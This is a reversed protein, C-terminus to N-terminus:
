VKRGQGRNKKFNKPDYYRYKVRSWDAVDLFSKVGFNDPFVKDEGKGIKKESFIGKSQSHAKGGKVRGKSEPNTPTLKRQFKENYNLEYEDIMSLNSPTLGELVSNTNDIM